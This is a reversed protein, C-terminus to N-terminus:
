QAVRIHLCCIAVVRPGLRLLALIGRSCSQPYAVVEGQGLSDVCQPYSPGEGVGVLSAMEELSVLTAVGRTWTPPTPTLSKAGGILMLSRYGAGPTQAAQELRSPSHELTLCCESPQAPANIASMLM